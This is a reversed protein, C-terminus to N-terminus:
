YSLEGFFNKLYLFYPLITFFNYILRVNNELMRFVEYNSEEQGKSVLDPTLSTIPISTKYMISPPHSLFHDIMVKIM